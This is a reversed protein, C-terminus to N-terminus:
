SDFKSNLFLIQQNSRTWIRSLSSLPSIFQRKSDVNDCQMSCALFRRSVLSYGTQNTLNIDQTGDRYDRWLARVLMLLRCEKWHKENSAKGLLSSGTPRRISLV